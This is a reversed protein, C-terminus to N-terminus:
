RYVLVVVYQKHIYTTAICRRCSVKQTFKGNINLENWELPTVLGFFKLPARVIERQWPTCLFTVFHM